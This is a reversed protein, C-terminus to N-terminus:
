IGMPCLKRTNLQPTFSLCQRDLSLCVIICICVQEMKVLNEPQIIVYHTDYIGINWYIRAIWHDVYGGSGRM